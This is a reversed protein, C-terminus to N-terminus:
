MRTTTSHPQRRRQNLRQETPTSWRCNAPEYDGEPDRRDLSLGEPRRGLDALFNEFSALWRDCVHIGRGGYYKWDKNKPNLCRSKMAQWSNYTPTGSM